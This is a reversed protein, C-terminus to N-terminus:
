MPNEPRPQFIMSLLSSNFTNLLRTQLRRALNSPLDARDHEDTSISTSFWMYLQSYFVLAIKTLYAQRGMQAKSYYSASGAPALPQVLQPVHSIVSASHLMTVISALCFLSYGIM